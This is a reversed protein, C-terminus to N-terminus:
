DADSGSSTPVPHENAEKTELVEGAIGAIYKTCIVLPIGAARARRVCDWTGKSDPMPFAICVDAGHDVMLQNRLPGARRRYRQWEAPYTEVQWGQQKAVEGALYDAGYRVLTRRDRSVQSGHVLTVFERPRKGAQALLMEQITATDTWDRSGTVLIRM